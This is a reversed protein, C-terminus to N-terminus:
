TCSTAPDPYCKLEQGSSYRDGPPPFGNPVATPSGGSRPNRFPDPTGRPPCGRSRRHPMPHRADVRPMRFGGSDGSPPIGPSRELALSRRRTPARTVGTRFFTGGCLPRGNHQTTTVSDTGSLPCEASTSLWSNIPRHHRRRPPGGGTFPSHGTGYPYGAHVVHDICTARHLNWLPFPKCM